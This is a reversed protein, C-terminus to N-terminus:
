RTQRPNLVRRGMRLAAYSSEADWSDCVRDIRSQARPRSLVYEQDFVACYSRPLENPRPSTVAMDNTRHCFMRLIFAKAVAATLICHPRRGTVRADSM